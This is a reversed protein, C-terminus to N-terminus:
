VATFKFIFSTNSVQTITFEYKYLEEFSSLCKNGYKDQEELTISEEVGQVLLLISSPVALCSKTADVPGLTVWPLIFISLLFLIVLDYFSPSIRLNEFHFPTHLKGM